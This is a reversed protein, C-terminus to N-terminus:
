CRRAPPSSPRPSSSAPARPRAREDRRRAPAPARDGRRDLLLEREAFILALLALRQQGQSGYRRVSRGALGIHLEDYQPGHTTYGRELDRVRRERLEAALEDADLCRQAAPLRARGRGPARARRRRASRARRAGRGGRPPRRDAGCGRGRAGTDWADLSAVPSAGGRVRALSPTASPWRAGFRARLEARAPWLAPVLRDLHARRAAPAGKVLALRDPMFLALAPRKAAAGPGAVSGDLTRTRGEDRSVAARFTRREPGHPSWSRSGPSPSASASRRASPAPRPLLPRLARLVAGRPPEDQRGREARAAGYPEPRAETRGDALNRFGRLEVTEVLM